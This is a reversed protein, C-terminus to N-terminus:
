RPKRSRAPHHHASRGARSRVESAQPSRKKSPIFQVVGGVRDAEPKADSYHKFPGAVVRGHNDVAAYDRVSHHRPAGTSRGGIAQANSPPRRVITRSGPGQTHWYGDKQWVEAKEYQGDRRLFYLHVEDDVHLVHTAGEQRAHAILDDLTNFDAVRHQESLPNSYRPATM